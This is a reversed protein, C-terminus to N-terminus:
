APYHRCVFPTSYFEYRGHEILGASERVPESVDAGYLLLLGIHAMVIDQKLYM